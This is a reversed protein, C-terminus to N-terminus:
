TSEDPTVWQIPAQISQGLTTLDVTKNDGFKKPNLKSLTWKRADIRLRDRQIVEHNIQEEGKENRFIDTSTNDAIGILEDFMTEAYVEKARAYQKSKENDSDLWMFFTSTSPMDKDKLINRIAEGEELRKCIILFIADIQEKNYAM